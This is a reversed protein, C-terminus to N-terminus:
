MRTISEIVVPKTLMQGSMYPDEAPNAQRIQNIQRVIEMGKIVRGFAAYGFKDPNRLGGHDLGPQAGICIFFSSTATDPGMRAMSLTGDLHKITTKTTTEITIAAFQLDTDAVDGQIVTIKPSGQDNDYRVVRYFNGGNYQGNDVYRLFNGVTKPALNQYLEVEITGLTTKM